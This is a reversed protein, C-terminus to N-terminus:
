SSITKGPHEILNKSFYFLQKLCYQPQMPLKDDKLNASVYPNTKVESSLEEFSTNGFFNGKEDAKRKSRDFLYILFKIQRCGLM